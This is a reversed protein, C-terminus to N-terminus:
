LPRIKEQSRLRFQLAVPVAVVRAERACRCSGPKRLFPLVHPPRGHNGGGAPCSVHPALTPPPWASPASACRRAAPKTASGLHDLAQGPCAVYCRSRRRLWPGKRSRKGPQS